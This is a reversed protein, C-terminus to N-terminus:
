ERAIHSELYELTGNVKKGPNFINQPDFIDKTKKFLALVAPSYMKSLYPTRIIGDNHEGTISGKFERVLDYFKDSVALIKARESKKMLNMLPIIHFNGNGAHGAINAEIGHDKLIKLAKPLFEPMREPKICFDDVFPATRKNNVHERLLNFSERRMVWFKNEESDKEIVRHWINFSKIAEVIKRIKSKVEEETEEAIEVLVVLKPLGLMRAGILMEPIFKVAFSLLSNGARKAIEPMFRLGLKITEEDFTELSEPEYPLVAKVVEPLENWSKFFLAVMDHHQKEPVLQIKAETVIGLTGQSGVLLKNLDFIEEGTHLARSQVNWLYYGASNKSVDPLAEEIIEKHEEILNFLNKYLNGEFDGQAMKAELEVKSLPKVVYENGDSFIVKMELVFKEMKGYRLTKEGACNNAIMGGLACLNKSAPFCPLILGKVLTQKEFDRYYAGPQVVINVGHSEGIHNMHKTVDAIISENLPGGTMDSGAARMTLSHSPNERIWTVLAKLDEADKPFVVLEPRVEFLSADRSYTRLTVEDDAVEGKFFKKIEEALRM